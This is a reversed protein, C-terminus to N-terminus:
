EEESELAQWYNKILKDVEGGFLLLYMGQVAECGGLAIDHQKDDQKLENCYFDHLGELEKKIKEESIM